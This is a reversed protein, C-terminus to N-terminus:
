HLIVSQHPSDLSFTPIQVDFTEGTATSVMHYAGTMFGSPTELPAGSIYEFAAGPRLQPQEGVVGSGEVHQTHGRSDTIHWTRRLLRVDEAGQNEIRVRYAWVFQREEPQSQDELFFPRVTVRIGRTVAAYSPGNTEGAPAAAGIALGAAAPDNDKM